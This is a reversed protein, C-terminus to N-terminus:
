GVFPEAPHGLRAALDAAYLALWGNTYVVNPDSCGQVIAEVEGPTVHDRMLEYLFAVLRSDMKVSGSRSRLSDTENRDTMTLVCYEVEM